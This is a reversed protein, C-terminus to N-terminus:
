RRGREPLGLAVRRAARMRSYESRQARTQPSTKDLYSKRREASDRSGRTGRGGRDGRGRGGERAGQNQDGRQARRAAWEKRRQEEEKLQEDIKEIQQAPTMAFFENMRQQERAERRQRWEDFQKERAEEPLNRFAERMEGYLERRREDTAGEMEERLEEIKAVNPDQREPLYAWAAMASLLLILVAAIWKTKKGGSSPEASTKRTARPAPRRIVRSNNM